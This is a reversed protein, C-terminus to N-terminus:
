KYILILINLFSHNKHTISDFIFYNLNKLNIAFSINYLYDKNSFNKMLQSNVLNINIKYGFNFNIGKFLLSDIINIILNFVLCLKRNIFIWCKIM